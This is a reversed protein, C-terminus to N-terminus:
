HAWQWTFQSSAKDFLTVIKWQIQSGTIDKDKEKETVLSFVRKHRALFSPTPYVNYILVLVCHENNASLTMDTTHGALTRAWSQQHILRVETVSLLIRSDLASVSRPHATVVDCLVCARSEQTERGRGQAGYVDHGYKGGGRRHGACGNELSAERTQLQQYAIHLFLKPCTLLTSDPEPILRRDGYCFQFPTSNPTRQYEKPTRWGVVSATVDAPQKM